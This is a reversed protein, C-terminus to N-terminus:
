VEVLRQQTAHVPETLLHTNQAALHLGKWGRPTIRLMIGIEIRDSVTASRQHVRHFLSSVFQAVAAIEGKNRPLTLRNALQRQIDVHVRTPLEPPAALRFAGSAAAPQRTSTDVSGVHIGAPTDFIYVAAVRDPIDPPNGLQSRWYAGQAGACDLVRRGIEEPNDVPRATLDDM